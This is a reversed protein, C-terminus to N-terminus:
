IEDADPNCHLHGPHLLKLAEAHECGQGQAWEREKAGIGAHLVALGEPTFQARYADLAAHKSERTADIDFFTNPAATFYFGVGRVMHPEWAADIAPDTKIRPFRHLLVAEAVARGVRTHDGHAEYPMWPDVTLVWDPVTRRIERIVDRRVDFYDYEGADPYELWTQERVGIHEGAEHQEARLQATAQADTLDPDTVGVLDDTVTLYFVEAGSRSLAAITGGAAIDNDDYHPQVCLVREARALEPIPILM